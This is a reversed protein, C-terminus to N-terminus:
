DASPDAADDAPAAPESEQKKGSGRKRKAEPDDYSWGRGVLRDAEVADTEIPDGGGAPWITKRTM